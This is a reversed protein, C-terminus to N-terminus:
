TMVEHGRYTDIVHTASGILQVTGGQLLLCRDCFREMLELAHSVFVVTKGEEKFRDFTAFCKEQFAQDGVALVEDLLLVDFPIQIAISYALRVANGVLLEEAEPRRLARARRVRPHRRVEGRARAQDTRRAHRQHPHQRARHAGSNFGVGLEIFPSLLGNVRVRGSDPVYIGALIRLLTSKGSGNPGIVGFFEGQEVAFRSTRPAGRQARLHRAPVPAPLVGQPVDAARAPHPVGELRRRSRDSAGSLAERRLLPGRPPLHAFAALATLLSSPSRSSDAAQVRTSRRRGVRRVPRELGRADVHRIDQMVQVFPNLFAVKQAWDPLIGIPYFIACAFFLLSAALEWVQGIDRFRVYLASLLLGLAVTFVYLEALLPIVLLWEIRPQSRASDRRLRRVRARERLVHHRARRLVLAPDPDSRFALRRLTPGGEVISPLMLGVADIFFLFLLIGILLFLAFDDTQNATRLLHAFVLWLVGFYALPKVLSWLYGLAADNYKAKFDIVGIVRLVRLYYALGSTARPQSPGNAHESM